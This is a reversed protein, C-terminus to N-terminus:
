SDNSQNILRDHSVFFSHRRMELSMTEGMLQKKKTKKEGSERNTQGREGGGWREKVKPHILSLTIKLFANHM